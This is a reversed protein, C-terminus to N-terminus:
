ARRSRIVLFVGVIVVGLIALKVGLSGFGFIGPPKPQHLFHFSALGAQMESDQTADGGIFVTSLMYLRGDAFMQHEVQVSANPAEGTRQINEYAPAGDITFVRSSVLQLHHVKKLVQEYKAIYSSDFRAFPAPVIALSVSRKGDQSKIYFGTQDQSKVTWNGPITFTFNLDESKLDLALSSFASFIFALGFLSYRVLNTNMTTQPSHHRVIWLQAVGGIVNPFGFGERLHRRPGATPELATNPWLLTWFEFVIQGIL